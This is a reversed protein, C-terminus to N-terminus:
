IEIRELEQEYRVARPKDRQKLCRIAYLALEQKTKYYSEVRTRYGSVYEHEGLRKPGRKLDAIMTEIVEIVRGYSVEGAADVGARPEERDQEDGEASEGSIPKREM